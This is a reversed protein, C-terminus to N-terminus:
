VANETIYFVLKKKTCLKKRLEGRLFDSKVVNGTWCLLDPPRVPPIQQWQISSFPYYATTCSVPIPSKIKEKKAM